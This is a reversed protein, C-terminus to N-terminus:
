GGKTISLYSHASNVTNPNKLGPPSTGGVPCEQNGRDKGGDM